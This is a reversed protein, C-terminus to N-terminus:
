RTHIDASFTVDTTNSHGNGTGDLWGAAREDVTQM